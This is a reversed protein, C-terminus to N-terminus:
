GNASFRLAPIPKKVFVDPNILAGPPLGARSRDAQQPDAMKHNSQLNPRHSLTGDRAGKLGVAGNLSISPTPSVVVTVVAAGTAKRNGILIRRRPVCSKGDTWTLIRSHLTPDGSPLGSDANKMGCDPCVAATAM